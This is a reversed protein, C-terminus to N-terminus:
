TGPPVAGKDEVTSISTIGAFIAPTFSTMTMVGGFLSPFISGEMRAAAFTAVAVSTAYRDSGSLRTVTLDELQSEVSAPVAEEGGVIVANTFGGERIAEVADDSLSGGSILVIPSKTAYSWPGIALADAFSAGTAVIVTDSANGSAMLRGLALVSTAARDAGAIREVYRGMAVVEAEVSGSVAAEGGLIVVDSAGLREIESVAEPALSGRPTIM